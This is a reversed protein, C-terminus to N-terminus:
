QDLSEIASVKGDVFEVRFVEYEHTQQVDVWTWDTFTRWTGSSDLARTRAEVRQRSTSYRTGTYSWVDIEGAATKRRYIRNPKDKAMEVMDPTFGIAVQGKRITEQAEAPFASFLEPSRKIRSEPTSACAALLLALIALVCAALHNRM